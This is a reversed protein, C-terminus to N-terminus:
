AASEPSQHRLNLPTPWGAWATVPPLTLAMDGARGQGAVSGWGNKETGRKFRMGQFHLFCTGQLRVEAPQCCPNLINQTVTAASLSVSVSKDLVNSFSTSVNEDRAFVSHSPVPPADPLFWFGKAESRVALAAKERSSVIGQNETICQALAPSPRVWSDLSGCPDNESGCLSPLSQRIGGVEEKLHLWEWSVLHLVEIEILHTPKPLLLGIM